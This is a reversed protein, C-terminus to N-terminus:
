IEESKEVIEDGEEVCLRANVLFLFHSLPEGRKVAWVWCTKDITAKRM